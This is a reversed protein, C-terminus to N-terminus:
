RSVVRVRSDRVLHVPYETSLLQVVLLVIVLSPLRGRLCACFHWVNVVQSGDNGVRVHPSSSEVSGFPFASPDVSYTSFKYLCPPREVTMFSALSKASDTRGM